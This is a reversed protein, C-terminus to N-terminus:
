VRSARRRSSTWAPREVLPAAVAARGLRRRRAVFVIVVLRVVLVVSPQPQPPDQYAPPRTTSRASPGAPAGGGLDEDYKARLAPDMLIRYAETLDAAIGAAM